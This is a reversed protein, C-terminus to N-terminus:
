RIYGQSISDSISMPLKYQIGGGPQDFCPAKKGSYVGFPKVVEYSNYQASESFPVVSRAGYPTGQPSAYSGSTGVYRDFRADPQLTTKTPAGEFGDNAFFEKTTILKPDYDVSLAYIDKVKQYFRRESARIDRIRHLLEEFYDEGFPKPTKLRIDNLVFGKIMYESLVGTAWNRFQMGIHSRVRYGIALIMDLNYFKVLRKVSRKGEIQVQLSQKCTAM